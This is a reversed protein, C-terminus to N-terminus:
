TILCPCDPFSFILCFYCGVFLSFFIQRNCSCVYLCVGWPLFKLTWLHNCFVSRSGVELFDTSSGARSFFIPDPFLRLFFIGPDAVSRSFGPVPDAGRFFPDPVSILIFVQDLFSRLFVLDSQTIDDKSRNRTFRGWYFRITLWGWSFFGSRSGVELFGTISGGMTFFRVQFRGRSFFGGFSSGVKRFFVPDSLKIDIRQIIEPRHRNLLIVM